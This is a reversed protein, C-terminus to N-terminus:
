TVDHEGKRRRRLVSAGGMAALGSGLLVVTLPEPTVLACDVDFTCSVEGLLGTEDWAQWQVTLTSNKTLTLHDGFLYAAYTIHGGCSADYLDGLPTFSPATPTDCGFLAGDYDYYVFATARGEGTYTIWPYDLLGTQHSFNGEVAATRAFAVFDFAGTESQLEGVQFGRVGGTGLDTFGPLGQPNGVRIRIETVGGMDEWGPAFLQGTPDYTVTIEVSACARFAGVTCQTAFNRFQGQAPAGLV